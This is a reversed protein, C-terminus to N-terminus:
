DGKPKSVKKSSRVPEDAEDDSRVDDAHGYVIMKYAVKLILYFWYVQLLLLVYLLVICSWDSVSKVPVHSLSEVQASWCVYPYCVLRMLFFVLAFMEFLRDACFQYWNNSQGPCREEGIYKFMKACHLFVDAPDLLLMIIVGVRNYSVLYSLVVLSVTTLHHVQMEIFDKRKHELFVSVMGQLYRAGYIIYFATFGETVFFHRRYLEGTVPHPLMDLTGHWWNVSPWAWEQQSVVIAGFVTFIGYFIQEMATQAFKQVKANRKKEIHAKMEASLTEPNASRFQTAPQLIYRASPEVLLLRVGWNLAFLVATFVAFAVVDEGSKVHPVRHAPGPDKFLLVDLFARSLAQTEAWGVRLVEM